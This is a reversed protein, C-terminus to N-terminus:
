DVRLNATKRSRRKDTTYYIAYEAMLLSRVHRFPFYLFSKFSKMAKEEAEILNENKEVILFNMM